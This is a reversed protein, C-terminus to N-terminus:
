GPLPFFCSRFPTTYPFLASCLPHRIGLVFDNSVRLVRYGHESLGRERTRDAEGRDDHSRGDVEIVLQASDCYFDVVFPGIPVQRRFKWGQLRRGRLAYWLRREPVTMERRLRRAFDIPPQCGPPEDPTPM